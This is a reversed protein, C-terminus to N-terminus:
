PTLQTLLRLRRDSRHRSDHNQGGGREYALLLRMTTDSPTSRELRAKWGPSEEPIFLPNRIAHVEREDSHLHPFQRALIYRNRRGPEGCTLVEPM